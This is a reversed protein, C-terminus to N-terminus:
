GENAPSLQKLWWAFANIKNIFLAPQEPTAIIQYYGRLVMRTPPFPHTEPRRISTMHLAAETKIKQM